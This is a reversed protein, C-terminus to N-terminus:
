VSCGFVSTSFSALVLGLSMLVAGGCSITKVNKTKAMLPSILVGLAWSLGYAEPDASISFLMGLTGVFAIASQSTGYPLFSDASSYYAQFVGYSSNIGIVQFMAMFGAFVLLCKYMKSEEDQSNLVSTTNNRNDTDQLEHSSENERSVEM